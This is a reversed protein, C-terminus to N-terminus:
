ELESVRIPEASSESEVGMILDPLSAQRSFRTPLNPSPLREPLTGWSDGNAFRVGRVVVTFDAPRHDLPLYIVYPHFVRNAPDKLLLNRAPLPAHGGHLFRQPTDGPLRNTTFSALPKLGLEYMEAFVSPAFYHHRLELRVATIHKASQSSFSVWPLLLHVGGQKFRMAKMRSDTILLPSGILNRFGIPSEPSREIQTKPIGDPPIRFPFNRISEEVFPRVNIGPLPAVASANISAVQLLVEPSVM